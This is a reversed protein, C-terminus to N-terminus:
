IAARSAIRESYRTMRARVAVSFAIFFVRSPIMPRVRMRSFDTRAQRLSPIKQWPYLGLVEFLAREMARDPAIEKERGQPETEGGRALRFRNQEIPEEREDSKDQAQQGDPDGFQDFTRGVLPEM